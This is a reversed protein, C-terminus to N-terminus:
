SEPDCVVQPFCDPQEEVFVNNSGTIGSITARITTVGASVGDVTAQSGSTYSISAVFPDDISWSSVSYGPLGYGYQDRAKASVTRSQGVYMTASAVSVSTFVSKSRPLWDLEIDTNGDSHAVTRIQGRDNWTFDRTGLHDDNNGLCDCDDEWVHIRVKAVGSDPIVQRFFAFHPYVTGLDPFSYNDYEATGLLSGDPAYFSADVNVEADEGGGDGFYIRVYDLYTTDAGPIFTAQVGDGLRPAGAAPADIRTRKGSADTWWLAVAEEGDAASQITQGQGAPQRGARESRTESPAVVFVAPGGAANELPNGIARGGTTFGFVRGGEANATSAVVLGDGGRWTLRQERSPVFLDLEPLARLRAQFAAPSEGAAASAAALLAAGADSALYEQLVVQHVDWPSDRLADRVALRVDADALAVAVARGIVQLSAEAGRLEPATAATDPGAQTLDACAGLPLALAVGLVLRRWPLPSSSVSRQM